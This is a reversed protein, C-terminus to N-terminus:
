NRTAFQIITPSKLITSCNYSLLWFFNPKFVFLLFISAHFLNTISKPGHYICKEKIFKSLYTWFTECPTFIIKWRCPWSQVAEIHIKWDLNLPYVYFKAWLPDHKLVHGLKRGFKNWSVLFIEDCGRWIKNSELHCKYVVIQSHMSPTLQPNRMIELM